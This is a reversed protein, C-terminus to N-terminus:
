IPRADDIIVEALRCMFMFEIVLEAVYVSYRDDLRVNKNTRWTETDTKRFFAEKQVSLRFGHPGGRESRADLFGVAAEPSGAEAVEEPRRPLNPRQLALLM